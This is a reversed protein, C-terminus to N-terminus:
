FFVFCHMSNLSDNFILYLEEVQPEKNDASEDSKKEETQSEEKGKEETESQEQGAEDAKEM